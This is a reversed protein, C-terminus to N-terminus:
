QLKVVVVLVMVLLEVVWRGGELSGVRGGAEFVRLGVTASVGEGDIRGIRGVRGVRCIIDIAGM